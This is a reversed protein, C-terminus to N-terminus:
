PQMLADRDAPMGAAEAGDATGQEPVTPEAGAGPAGDRGAEAQRHAARVLRSLVDGRALDANPNSNIYSALVDELGDTIRKQETLATKTAELEFTARELKGNTATHDVREAALAKVDAVRGFALWALLGLQGAIVTALAITAIM